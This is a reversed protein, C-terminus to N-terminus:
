WEWVEKTQKETLQQMLRSRTLAKLLPFGAVKRTVETRAAVKGKSMKVRAYAEAMAEAKGVARQPELM